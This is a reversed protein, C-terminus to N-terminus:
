HEYYQCIKGLIVDKTSGTVQKMNAPIGSICENALIAFLLAEKNKQTIGKYSMKFAKVGRFYKKLLKMLLINNAGGGSVILEDTKSNPLIFNKYNFWVAYATFETVTRIIDFHNRNKFKSLIKSQFKEGYHERGTSKPPLLRYFNDRKLYEFLKNNIKGKSAIVGNKDFKKNFLKNTLGDILMNGPGCDFAIVNEKSTNKQLFTINSIGGINLLVRNYNNDTFLIYDLYPILPAGDGDASCDSIRFDGVTTIGTLNAIVSPDGIQLTSKFKYGLYDKKEPLHQITQGHSGILDIQSSHLKNRKLLHIVADSFIAGLLFNLKTIKEVSSTKNYSNLFIEKRINEPIPKEYYDIIKFITNKGNGKIKVLISDIADASTGSSVGIILKNKKNIIKVLNRSM